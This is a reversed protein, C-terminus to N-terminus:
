MKVFYTGRGLSALSTSISFQVCLQSFEVEYESGLMTVTRIPPDPPSLTHYDTLM